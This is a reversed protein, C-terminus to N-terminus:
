GLFPNSMREEGITSAPGHGPFIETDDDYVLLKGRISGILDDMSGGPFDTRGVSGAFLTDGTFIVPGAVQRGGPLAAAPASEHDRAVLCIGGPTHGPTHLVKLILTGVRIEDGDDVLRDAPPGSIRAGAWLSLNMRPQTLMPADLRHAYLPAGTATKVAANAAIHDAHGHTDIIAGVTLGLRRVTRLIDRDDGGPDIVAAETSGAGAVIHCNAMMPGVNLTEILM